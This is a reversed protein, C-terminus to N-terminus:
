LARVYKLCTKFFETDNSIFLTLTSQSYYPDFNLLIMRIQNWEPNVIDVSTLLVFTIPVHFNCHKSLIAESIKSSVVFIYNSFNLQSYSNFEVCRGLTKDYEIGPDKSSAVVVIDSYSHGKTITCLLSKLAPTPSSNYAVISSESLENSRTSLLMFVALRLRLRKTVVCTLSFKFRMELVKGLVWPYM